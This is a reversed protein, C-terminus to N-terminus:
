AYANVLRVAGGDVGKAGQVYDPGSKDVSPSDAAVTGMIWSPLGRENLRAVAADAIEPSVVAVMGVGLNLTRELDSLPVNGLESVLKFIAPLEWTARDVTAVLGQPLVRALNAALGGGTVHSFGNVSGGSAGVPFARALDLCDAAYVRTPELLEEGLTRGLESVQRDLAWGAHNIVRRVLSYGNSHLGSSAMGIVVDGARVRDPGLLSDAEVVGTAAGAVDYEHEGLLGPHEATEGGVLATGAVSCAAAIGRVIDAIREPVVKGCAIYDTMFLPEAGVVVIDDVVMGVLDFGITDHIDMAQAIAVKTGVGDTSTALLPKKYTLLKSVDYLGAFGGVGGLVSSNHTAKVAGKMLEVARDGAEVDVGASAYTIGTSNEASPSASTM